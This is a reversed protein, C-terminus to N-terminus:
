FHQGNSGGEFREKPKKVMVDNSHSKQFSLRAQNGTLDPGGVNGLYPGFQMPEALIFPYFFGIGMLFPIVM